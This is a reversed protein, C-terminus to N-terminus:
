DLPTPESARVLRQVRAGGRARRPGLSRGPGLTFTEMFCRALDENPLAKRNAKADLSLLVAPDRMIGPLMERFSGLAHKRLLQLHRQMARASNVKTANVGFHGHWFLTMKELLPHPTRIMRQLWWARLDNSSNEDNSPRRWSTMSGISRRSMPAHRLLGDITRQPGDRLARQLQDWTAGFAARRYLHGTLALNWPRRADPEYRAWATAPDFQQQTLTAM